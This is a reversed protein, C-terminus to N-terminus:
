GVVKLRGKNEWFWIPTVYSVQVNGNPPITVM